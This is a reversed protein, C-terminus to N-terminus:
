NFAGSFRWFMTQGNTSGTAEVFKVSPNEALIASIGPAVNQAYTIASAMLALAITALLKKM